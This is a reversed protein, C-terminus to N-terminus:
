AELYPRIADSWDGRQRLLWEALERVAGCGGATTLVLDAQTKVAAAADAVAVAIGCRRMAPLDGLDDGVYLITSAPWGQEHLLEELADGKRGKGQVLFDLGLERARTENAVGARGSLIGVSLGARRLLVIGQGDRVHFFKIESGDGGYGIRGDTLVGDVDLVVAKIADASSCQRSM